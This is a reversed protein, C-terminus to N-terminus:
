ADGNGGWDNTEGWLRNSVAESHAAAIALERPAQADMELAKQWDEPRNDALEGSGECRECTASKLKPYNSLFAETSIGPPGNDITEVSGEGSCVPCKAM